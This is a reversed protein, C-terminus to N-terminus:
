QIILMSQYINILKPIEDNILFMLILKKELKKM